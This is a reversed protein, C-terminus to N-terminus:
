LNSARFALDESLQQYLTDPIPTKVKLARGLRNKQIAKELCSKEPCLYASRGMGQNFQIERSPYVRVIRWFCEKPAIQHCSLCRRYNSKM